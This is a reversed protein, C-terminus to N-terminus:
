YSFPPPCDLSQRKPESLVTVFVFLFSRSDRSLCSNQSLDFLETVEGEVLEVDVLEEDALDEDAFREENGGSRGLFAPAVVNENGHVSVFFSFGVAATGLFGGYAKM